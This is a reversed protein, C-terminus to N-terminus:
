RSGKQPCCFVRPFWLCLGRTRESERPFFGRRSSRRRRTSSEVREGIGAPDLKGCSSPGNMESSRQACRRGQAFVQQKFKGIAHQAPIEAPAAEVRIGEETNEFEMCRGEMSDDVTSVDGNLRSGVDTRGHHPIGDWRWEQGFQPGVLWVM